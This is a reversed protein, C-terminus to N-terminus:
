CPLCREAICLLDEVSTAANMDQMLHVHKKYYPGIYAYRVMRGHGSKGLMWSLHQRAIYIQRPERIYREKAEVSNHTCACPATTHDDYTSTSVTTDAAPALASSVGCDKDHGQGATLGVVAPSLPEAGANEIKSCLSGEIAGSSSDAVSDVAGAATSSTSDIKPRAFHADLKEWGGALRYQESLACYEQFLALRSPQPSVPLTVPETPEACAVSLDDRTLSTEYASAHTRKGTTIAAAATGGSAPVDTSANEASGSSSPNKTVGLFLAPNALIGEASMVGCCPHAEKLAQYVDDTTTINGNSIVPISGNFEARITQAITAIAALDAPGCRRKKTSGRTRGHICIAKCGNLILGRFVFAILWWCVM